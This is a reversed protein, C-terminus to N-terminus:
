KDFLESEIIKIEAQGPAINSAFSTDFPDIDDFSDGVPLSIQPTLVKDGLGLEQSDSNIDLVATQIEATPEILENELLKLETKGPVLAVTASSTDFPDEVTFDSFLNFFKNFILQFM